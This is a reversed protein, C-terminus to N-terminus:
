YRERSAVAIFRPEGTKRSAMRLTIPLVPRAPRPPRGDFALAAMLFAALGIGNLWLVDRGSLAISVVPNFLLAIALFGIAWLYKRSRVAQAVILLGSAFVVISLLTEHSAVALRFVALLLMTVSLWKMTQTM